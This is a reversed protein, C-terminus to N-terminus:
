VFRAFHRYSTYLAHHLHKSKRDARGKFLGASAVDVNLPEQLLMAWDGNSDFRM